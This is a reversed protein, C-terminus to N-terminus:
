PSSYHSGLGPSYDPKQCVFATYGEVKSSVIEFTDVVFCRDWGPEPILEGFVKLKDYENLNKFATGDFRMTCFRKVVEEPTMQACSSGSLLLLFIWLIIKHYRM